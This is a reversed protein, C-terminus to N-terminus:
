KKKYTCRRYFFVAEELPATLTNDQDNDESDSNSSSSSSSDISCGVEKMLEELSKSPRKSYGGRARWVESTLFDKIESVFKKPIPRNKGKFDRCSEDHCSQYYELKKLLVIMKVHNSEHERGAIECFTKDLLSVCFVATNWYFCGGYWKGRGWMGDALYICIDPLDNEFSIDTSSSDGDSRYRKRRSKTELSSMDINCVFSSSSSDLSQTEWSHSLLRRKYNNSSGCGRSAPSLNTFLTILSRFFVDSNLPTELDESLLRLTRHPEDPKGSGYTRMSHNRRYPDTDIVCTLIGTAKKRAFLCENNPDNRDISAILQKIFAGCHAASAWQSDKINFIYHRSLKTSSSADLEVEDVDSRQIDYDQLLKAYILELVRQCTKKPEIHNNFILSADIDIFLNCKHDAPIIEHHHRQSYNLSSFELWASIFTCVKFYRGRESHLALVVYSDGMKRRYNLARTQPKDYKDKKSFQQTRGGVIWQDSEGNTLM